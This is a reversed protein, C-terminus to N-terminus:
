NFPFPTPSLVTTKSHLERHQKQQKVRRKKIREEREGKFELGCESSM